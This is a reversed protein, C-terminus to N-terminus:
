KEQPRFRSPLIPSNRIKEKWANILCQNFYEYYPRNDLLDLNRMESSQSIHDVYIEDM